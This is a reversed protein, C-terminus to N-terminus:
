LNIVCNREGTAQVLSVDRKRCTFLLIQVGEERAYETLAGVTREAGADDYQMLVDDLFVPIKQEMCSLMALRCALYAQDYVGGSFADAPHAQSGENLLLRYDRGIRLEQYRGDTMDSLLAGARRNLTMGFQQEMRAYARELGDRTLQLIEEQEALAARKQEWERIAASLMDPTRGDPFLHAQEQRLREQTAALETLRRYLEEETCASLGGACEPRTGTKDPAGEEGSVSHAYMRSFEARDSAGYQKWPCPCCLWFLLGAAGAAAAALMAAPLRNWAGYLIGIGGAAAAALGLFRYKGASMVRAFEEPSCIPQSRVNGGQKGQQSRRSELEQGIAAEERAQKQLEALGVTGTEARELAKKYEERLSVLRDEAQNLLGGRGRKARLANLRQDLARMCAAYSLAADGTQELNALREAIEDTGKKSIMLQAQAVYATKEFTEEGLDFLIRGPAASLPIERGTVGDFLMRRDQRASAGFQVQLVWRTGKEDALCIRGGAPTGDWPLLCGREGRGIGYFASRLFHLLTSKGAGNEGYIVTLGAGPSLKTDKLRGFGDIKIEEIRM